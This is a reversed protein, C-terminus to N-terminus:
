LSNFHKRPSGDLDKSAPWLENGKFTHSFPVLSRESDSKLMEREDRRGREDEWSARTMTFVHDTGM